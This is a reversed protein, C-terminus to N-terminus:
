RRRTFKSTACPSLCEQVLCLEGDSSHFDLALTVAGHCLRRQDLHRCFGTVQHVAADDMLVHPRRLCLPEQPPFVHSM